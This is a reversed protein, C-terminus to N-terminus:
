NKRYNRYFCMSRALTLNGRSNEAFVIITVAYQLETHQEQIQACQDENSCSLSASIFSLCLSMFCTYSLCMAQTILGNMQQQLQEICKVLSM